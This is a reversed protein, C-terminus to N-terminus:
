VGIGVVNLIIGLVIIAIAIPAKIYFYFKSYSREFKSHRKKNFLYFVYATSVLLVVGILRHAWIPIAGVLGFLGRAIVADPARGEIINALAFTHFLGDAFLILMAFLKLNRYKSKM